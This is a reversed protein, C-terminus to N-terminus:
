FCKHKENIRIIQKAADAIEFAWEHPCQISLYEKALSLAYPSKPDCAEEVESIELHGDKILDQLFEYVNDDM